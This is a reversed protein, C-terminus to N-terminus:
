RLNAAAGRACSHCQMQYENIERWPEHSGGGMSLMMAAGCDMCCMERRMTWDEPTMDFTVRYIKGCVCQGEHEADALHIWRNCKPCRDSFTIHDNKFSRIVPVNPGPAGAARLADMQAHTILTSGSGSKAFYKPNRALEAASERAVSLTASVQTSVRGTEVGFPSTVRLVELVQDLTREGPEM